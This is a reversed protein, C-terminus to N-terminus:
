SSTQEHKQHDDFALVSKLALVALAYFEQSNHIDSIFAQIIFNLIIVTLIVFFPKNEDDTLQSMKYIRMLLTILFFLFFFAAPIGFTYAISIFTNHLNGAAMFDEVLTSSDIWRYAGLGEAKLDYNGIPIGLGNGMLPKKLIAKSAKKWMNYRFSSSNAASSAKLEYLKGTYFESPFIIVLRQYKAPVYLIIPSLFLAISIFTILIMLGISKFLLKKRIAFTFFVTLFFSVFATRSGSMIIIILLVASILINKYRITESSIEYILLIIAATGAIIMKQSTSSEVVVSWTFTNFLPLSNIHLLLMLFSITIVCAYFQRMKSLIYHLNSARFCSFLMLFLLINSFLSWRGLLGTNGCNPRTFCPLPINHFLQFSVWLFFLVLIAPFGNLSLKPTENLGCLNKFLIITGTFIPLILSIERFNYPVVIRVLSTFFLFVFLDDNKGKLLLIAYILTASVIILWSLAPYYNYTVQAFGFLATFLIFTTFGNLFFTPNEAPRRSQHYWDFIHKYINISLCNACYRKQSFICL